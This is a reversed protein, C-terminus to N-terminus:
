MQIFNQPLIKSPKFNYLPYSDMGFFFIGVSMFGDVHLHIYAEQERCTMQKPKTIGFLAVKSYLSYQM